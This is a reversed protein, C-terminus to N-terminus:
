SLVLSVNGKTSSKVASTRTDEPIPGGVQIRSGM